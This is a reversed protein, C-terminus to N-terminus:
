QLLQTVNIACFTRNINIIAYKLMITLFFNYICM